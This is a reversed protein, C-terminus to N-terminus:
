FFEEVPEDAHPITKLKETYIEQIDIYDQITYEKHIHRRARIEETKEFGYKKLMFDYYDHFAGGRGMPFYKSPQLNCVKCQLHVCEEDFLVSGTRGPVFHGAQGQLWTIQKGCTCCYGIETGTVSFTDRWRIFKSFKNWAKAKEKKKQPVKKKTKNM